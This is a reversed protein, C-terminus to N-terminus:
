SAPRRWNSMAIGPFLLAIALPLLFARSGASVIVLLRV